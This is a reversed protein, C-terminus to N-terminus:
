ILIVIQLNKKISLKDGDTDNVLVDYVVTQGVSHNASDRNTIPSRNEDGTIETLIFKQSITASDDTCALDVM